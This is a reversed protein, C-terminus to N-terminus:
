VLSSLLSVTVFKFGLSFSHLYLVPLTGHISEVADVWRLLGLLDRFKTLGDWAVTAHVSSNLSIIYETHGVGFGSSHSLLRHVFNLLLLALSKSLCALPNWLM